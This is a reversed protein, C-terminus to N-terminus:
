KAKTNSGESEHFIFEVPASPSIKREAGTKRNETRIVVNIHNPAHTEDFGCVIGIKKSGLRMIDGVVIIGGTSIEAFGL